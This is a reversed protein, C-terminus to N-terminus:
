ELVMAAFNAHGFLSWYRGDSIKTFRCKIDVVSVVCLCHRLWVLINPKLSAVANQKPCRREFCLIVLYKLFKPPTAGHTGGAVSIRLPGTICIHKQRLTM